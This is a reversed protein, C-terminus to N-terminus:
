SSLVLNNDLTKFNKISYQAVFFNYKRILLLQHICIIFDNNIESIRQYSM